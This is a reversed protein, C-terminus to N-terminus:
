FQLRFMLFSFLPLSVELFKGTIIRKRSVRTGMGFVVTFVCATSPVQSTVARSFLHNSPFSQQLLPPTWGGKSMGGKNFAGVFICFM